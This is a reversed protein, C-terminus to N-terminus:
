NRLWIPVRIKNREWLYIYKKNSVQSLNLPSTGVFEKCSMPQSNLNGFYYNFQRLSSLWFTLTEARSTLLVMKSKKAVQLKGLVVDLICMELNKPDTDPERIEEKSIVQLLFRTSTMKITGHGWNSTIYNKKKKKQLYMTVYLVFFCQLLDQQTTEALFRSWVTNWQVIREVISPFWNWHYVM